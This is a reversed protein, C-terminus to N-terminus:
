RRARERGHRGDPGAHGVGRDGPAASRRGAGPRRDRGRLAAERGSVTRRGGPGADAPRGLPRATLDAVLDGRWMLHFLVPLVKLRDGALAAGAFLPRGAAFVEALAGGGGRGGCRPHRYRSLWRVNAALVRDAEGVRRFEWGAVACARATM